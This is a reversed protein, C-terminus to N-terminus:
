TLECNLKIVSFTNVQVNISDGLTINTGLIYPSANVQITTIPSNKINTISVIKFNVDAVLDITTFSMLDITWTFKRTSVVGASNILLASDVSGVDVKLSNVTNPSNIHLTASPLTSGLGIGNFSSSVILLSGSAISISGTIGLSGTIQASGTFPFAPTSPAFSASLANTAYSATGLLSGTFSTARLSGTLGYSGSLQNTHTWVGTSGSPIYTWIDGINYSGTVLVSSLDSFDIPEQVAVYIIGSGGPSAKVCVGVPIIEYPASPPINTLVGNSGTGVFLTDGDNFANTNLGRVLGQTTIFGKSNDEINHTAVGLIQNLVNVSGSVLLSQALEVEPVDGQAGKLRVATGNLITAGTRNSVRTWNEQGVQLTIDAEANYVALCSDTNDWFLRGSKWAPTASGTNFDIYDVNNISGSIIPNISYSSTASYSSSLAYSSSIAISSTAAYSSSLAYSSSTPVLTSLNVPFTSGNGKIFTLNPNSFSATLLLSGTDGSSGSLSNIRNNISASTIQFEYRYVFSM